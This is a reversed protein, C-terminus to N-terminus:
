YTGKLQLPLSNLLSNILTLRSNSNEGKFDKNRQRTLETIQGFKKQHNSKHCGWWKFEKFKKLIIQLM